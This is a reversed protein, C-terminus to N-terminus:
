RASSSILPLISSSFHYKVKRFYATDTIKGGFNFKDFFGNLMVLLGDFTILVGGFVFFFASDVVFAVFGEQNLVGVGDFYATIILEALM